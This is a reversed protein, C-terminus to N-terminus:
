WSLCLVIVHKHSAVRTVCLFFFCCFSVELSCGIAERPTYGFMAVAGRSWFIIEGKSNACVIADHSMQMVSQLANDSFTNSHIQSCVSPSRSRSRPPPPRLTFPSCPRNATPTSPFELAELHAVSVKKKPRPSSGTSSPPNLPSDGRRDILISPQDTVPTTTIIPPVLAPKRRRGVTSNPQAQASTTPASPDGLMFLPSRARKSHRTVRLSGGDYDCNESNEPRTDGHHFSQAKKITVEHPEDFTPIETPSLLDSAEDESTSSGNNLHRNSEDQSVVSCPTDPEPTTSLQHQMHLPPSLPSPPRKRNDMEEPVMEMPTLGLEANLMERHKSAEFFDLSKKRLEIMKQESVIGKTLAQPGRTSNSDQGSKGSQFSDKSDRPSSSAERTKEDERLDISKHIKVKQAMKRFPPRPSFVYGFFAVVLWLGFIACLSLAVNKQLPLISLGQPHPFM